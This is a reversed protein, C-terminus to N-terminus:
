VGAVEPLVNTLEITGESEGRESGVFLVHVRAAPPGPYPLGTVCDIVTGARKERVSMFAGTVGLQIKVIRLIRELVAHVIVGAQM